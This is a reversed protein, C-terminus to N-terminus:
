VRPDKVLFGLCRFLRWSSVLCAQQLGQIFAVFGDKVKQQVELVRYKVIYYIFWLHLIEVGNVSGHFRFGALVGKNTYSLIIQGLM